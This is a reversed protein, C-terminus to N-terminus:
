LYGGQLQFPAQFATVLTHVSQFSPPVRLRHHRFTSLDKQQPHFPHSLATNPSTNHTTYSSDYSLPRLSLISLQAFPMTDGGQIYIGSFQSTRETDKWMSM